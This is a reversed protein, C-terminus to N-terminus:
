MANLLQKGWQGCKTIALVMVVASMVMTFILDIVEAGDGMNTIVDAM